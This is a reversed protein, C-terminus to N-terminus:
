KGIVAYNWIYQTAAVLGSPGSTLTFNPASGNAFVMSAGSLGAANANAPTLTVFSDTGFANAYTITAVIASVTPLTGPTLTIRGGNPGGAIAITPGTGAGIGAAISPTSASSSIAGAFTAQKTSDITLATVLANQTSGTSGAPAVQIIFSGGIGTGTGQSACYTVPQGATNSTGAVVNPVTVTQAVPAAVDALAGFRTIGPTSTVVAIGTVSNFQVSRSAGLLSLDLTLAFGNPLRFQPNNASNVGLNISSAAPTSINSSQAPLNIFGAGGIGSVLLSLPTPNLFWTAPMDGFVTPPAPFNVAGGANSSAYITTRALVTGAATYTGLGVEWNSGFDTAVYFHTNGDGITSLARFGTAINTGPATFSGTGSNAVVEKLRDFVQFTM